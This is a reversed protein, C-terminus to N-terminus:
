GLSFLDIKQSTYPSTKFNWFYHLRYEPNHSAFMVPVLYYHALVIMSCTFLQVEFLRDINKMDKETIKKFEWPLISINKRLEEVDPFDNAPLDRQRQIKIYM